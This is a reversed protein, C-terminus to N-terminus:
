RRQEQQNTVDQSSSRCLLAELHGKLDPWEDDIVSYIVSSRQHGDPLIMHKRLIGERRIGLREIAQQSRANRVDTKLQVRICGLVEFAHRLLLYKCETNVPTRRFARGYWTGGIELSRNARDIALYRTMGAATGTALDFVTFPLDTGRAQRSLLDEILARLRGPSDITGYPLYRWIDSENAQPWLADAHELRLPELWVWQGSLTVPQVEM